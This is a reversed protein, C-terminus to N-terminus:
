NVTELQSECDICVINWQVHFWFCFILFIKLKEMCMPDGHVADFLWLIIQKGSKAQMTQLVSSQSWYSLETWSRIYRHDSTCPVLFCFILFIYLKAVFSSRRRPAPEDSNKILTNNKNQMTIRPKRPKRTSNNPKAREQVFSSDDELQVNSKEKTMINSPRNQAIQLKMVIMVTWSHLHKFVCKRCKPKWPFVNKM